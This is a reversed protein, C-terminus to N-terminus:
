VGKFRRGSKAQAKKAKANKAHSSSAVSGFQVSVWDAVQHLVHNLAEPPADDAESLKSRAAAWEETLSDRLNSGKNTAFLFYGVAGAVLGVSFGALFSGQDSQPQTSDQSLVIPSSSPTSM